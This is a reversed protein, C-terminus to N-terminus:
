WSVNFCVIAHDDLRIDETHGRQSKWDKFGQIPDKIFSDTLLDNRIYQLVKLKTENELPNTMQHNQYLHNKAKEVIKDRLRKNQIKTTNISFLYCTTHYLVYPIGLTFIHFAMNAIRIILNQNKCLPKEFLHCYHCTDHTLDQLVIKDM